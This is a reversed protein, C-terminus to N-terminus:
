SKADVQAARLLHRDEPLGAAELVQAARQLTTAADASRGAARQARALWLLSLGTHRHGPDLQQWRTAARDVVQVADESHGLALHARGMALLMDAREPSVEPQIAALLEDGKKLSALAAAAQGAAVQAEGLLLLARPWDARRPEKAFFDVADAIPPIAEAHRGQLSRLLGLRMRQAALDRPEKPVAAFYEAGLAEAEALRGQRLQVLLKIGRARLLYPSDPKLVRQLVPEARDIDIEAEPYRRAGVLAGSRVLLFLGQDVTPTDGDMRSQIEHAQLLMDAATRPDGLEVSANAIRGLTRLVDNHDKGLLAIQQQLLGKLEVVGARADGELVLAYGFQSRAALVDVTVRDAHIERALEYARRAPELRGPQRAAMMSNALTHYALMRSRRDSTPLRTEAVQLAERSAAVAEDNRGQTSHLLAKWRLANMLGRADGLRRTGREAADVHRQSRDYDALEFYAEALGLDAAVAHAHDAGLERLALQRSEELVVVAQKYEGLGLLSDAVAKLLEAGVEPDSAPMGGLRDRARQLLQLATTARHGGSAGTDADSFLSLVFAKVEHARNAETRARQGQWLAVGFGVLLAVTALSGAVVQLRHRRVFKGIRYGLRDPQALVPEHALHHRLDQAFADVTPYRDDPAKKLAKNLIADLDGRLQRKAADDGAVASAPPPDASAIAEELEAASGRKLRYPRSGTLLEYAVVGLSYVDSATGLPEGRIQEPSAYDLTLARGSVLTLATEETRNGEMLKAIGFDLLRVEGDATVLINGPKLDRHVVLRAHAHAVAECVQLLLRIRDALALDHARCYTDIPEGEVLEMAFYPRGHQDVGADYLRAINPHALTALIDRERALRDGLARNWALHPLKLAVRRKLQGDAREALWVAGMGGRGLEHVLRYAGVLTGPHAEAGGSPAAGVKPLTDMFSGTEVSAQVALLARLSDRFGAHAGALSALWAPREQPPLALAEDLLASIEPWHPSLADFSSV